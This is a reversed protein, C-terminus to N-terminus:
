EPDPIYVGERAALRIVWEVFKTRTEHPLDSESSFVSPIDKDHLVGHSDPSIRFFTAKLHKHLLIDEEPEYGLAELFPPLVAGFYYGRFADSAKRPQRKVIEVEFPTHPKWRSTYANIAEMNFKLNRKEDSHLQFKM